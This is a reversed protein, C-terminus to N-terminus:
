CRHNLIWKRSEKSVEVGAAECLAFYEDKLAQRLEDRTAKVPYLDLLSDLYITKIDANAVAYAVWSAYPEPPPLVKKKATKRRQKKSDSIHNAASVGLKLQSLSREFWCPPKAQPIVNDCSHLATRWNTLIQGSLIAMKSLQPDLSLFDFVAQWLTYVSFTDSGSWFKNGLRSVPCRRLVLGAGVPERRVAARSPCFYKPTERLNSVQQYGCKWM